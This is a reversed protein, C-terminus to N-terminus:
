QKYERHNDGVANTADLYGTHFGLRGSYTVFLWKKSKIANFEM